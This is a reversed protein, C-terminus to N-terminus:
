TVNYHIWGIDYKDCLWKWLLGLVIRYGPDVSLILVSSPLVRFQMEALKDPPGCVKLRSVRRARTQLGADRSGRTRAAKCGAGKISVGHGQGRLLLLRESARCPGEGPRRGISSSLFLLPKGPKQPLMLSPLSKWLSVSFLLPPQRRLAALVQEQPCSNRCLSQLPSDPFHWRITTLTVLHEGGPRDLRHVYSRDRHM